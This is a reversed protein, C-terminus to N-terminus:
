QLLLTSLKLIVKLPISCIGGIKKPTNGKLVRYIVEKTFLPALSPIDETDDLLGISNLHIELRMCLAACSSNLALM